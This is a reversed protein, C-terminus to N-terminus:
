RRSFHFPSLIGSSDRAAWGFALVERENPLTNAM